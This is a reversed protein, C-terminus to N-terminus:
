QWQVSKLIRRIADDDQQFSALCKECKVKRFEVRCRVVKGEANVIDRRYFWVNETDFTSIETHLKDGWDLWKQFGPSRKVPPCSKCPEMTKLDAPELAITIIWNPEDAVSAPPDIRHLYILSPFPTNANLPLEMKVKFEPIEHSTWTDFSNRFIRQDLTGQDPFAQAATFMLSFMILYGAHTIMKVKNAVCRISILRLQRRTLPPLQRSCRNTTDIVPWMYKM